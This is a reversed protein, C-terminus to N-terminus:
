ILCLLDLVDARGLSIERDNAQELHVMLMLQLFKSNNPYKRQKTKSVATRLITATLKGQSKGLISNDTVTM